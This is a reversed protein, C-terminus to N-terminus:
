HILSKSFDKASFKKLDQLGEGLGIFQVPLNFEDSLGVVVGGKATGDLKTVVMGTLDVVEKFNRAQMFANQGTNGDLVLWVEHPAEPLDRGMVKKIKALEKMLEEKNHLRGATDVLLVDTKKAIASKVADYAVAAPDSGHQHAITKVGVREGWTQLQEIAAARYTDAACLMVSKDQDIFHRALKGITTTKGVGNVGVVLIVLPGDEPSALKAENTSIIEFISSELASKITDINGGEGSSIQKRVSAVLKDVTKVGMDARYLQEHLQELLTEDIKTKGTFIKSLKESLFSRSKKLGSQYVEKKEAPKNQEPITKGTSAAPADADLNEEFSKIASKEKKASLKRLTFLGLFFVVIVAFPIAAIYLFDLSQVQEFVTSGFEQFLSFPTTENSDM